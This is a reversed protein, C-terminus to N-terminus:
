APPSKIQLESKQTETRQEPLTFSYLTLDLIPVVKKVMISCEPQRVGGINLTSQYPPSSSFEYFPTWGNLASAIGLVPQYPSQLAPDTLEIGLPIEGRIYRAWM